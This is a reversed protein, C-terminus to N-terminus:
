RANQPFRQLHRQDLHEAREPVEEARGSDRLDRDGEGPEAQRAQGEKIKEHAERDQRQLREEQVPRGGTPTERNQGGVTAPAQVCRNQRLISNM